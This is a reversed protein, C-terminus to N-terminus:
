EATRNSMHSLIGMQRAQKIASNAFRQHKRSIGTMRAPGIKGFENVLWAYTAPDKWDARFRNASFWCSKRRSFGRRDKGNDDDTDTMSGHYKKSYPTKYAKVIEALTRNEGVKLIMHKMVDENIKFRRELENNVNIDSQYIFYVFHGKRVGNGTPQAFTKAGWDDEIAVDGGEAKIVDQVLSKLSSVQDESLGAKAVLALEYIM